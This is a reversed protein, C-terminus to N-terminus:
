CRSGYLINEGITSKLLRALAETYSIERGLEESLKRRYEELRRYAEESLKVKKL